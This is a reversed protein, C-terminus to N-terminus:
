NAGPRERGAAPGQLPGPTNASEPAPQGGPLWIDVTAGAGEQSRLTVQGGHLRTIGHVITLGLGRARERSRTTFFPDFAHAETAPAMGVGDDQLTLHIVSECSLGLEAARAPPLPETKLRVTLHGGARLAFHVNSLLQQLATEWQTLDAFLRCADLEQRVAITPASPLARIWAELIRQVLEHFELWQPRFRRQPRMALLMQDLEVEVRRVTQELTNLYQQATSEPPTEERLLTLYGQIPMLFNNFDHALRGALVRLSELRVERGQLEASVPLPPTPAAPPM